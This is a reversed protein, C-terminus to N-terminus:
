ETLTSIPSSLLVTAAKASPFFSPTLRPFYFHLKWKDNNIEILKLLIPSIKNIEASTPKELTIQRLWDPTSQFSNLLPWNKSSHPNSPLIVDIQLRSPSGQSIAFGRFFSTNYKYRELLSSASLEQAEDCRQRLKDCRMQADLTEWPGQMKAQRERARWKSRTQPGWLSYFWLNRGAFLVMFRDSLFDFWLVVFFSFFRHLATIIEELLAELLIQGLELFHDIRM